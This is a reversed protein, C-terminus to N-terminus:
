ATTAHNTNGNSSFTHGQRIMSELVSRAEDPSVQLYQNGILLVLEGTVTLYFSCKQVYAPVVRRFNTDAYYTEAVQQM